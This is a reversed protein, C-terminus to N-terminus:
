GPSVVHINQAPIHQVARLPFLFVMDVLPDTCFVRGNMGLSHTILRRRVSHLPVAKHVQVRNSFPQNLLWLRLLDRAEFHWSRPSTGTTVPSRDERGCPIAERGLPCAPTSRQVM